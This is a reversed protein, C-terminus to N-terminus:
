LPDVGGMESVSELVRRESLRLGRSVCVRVASSISCTVASDIGDHILFLYHLAIAVVALAFSTMCLDHLEQRQAVLQSLTDLSQQQLGVAM